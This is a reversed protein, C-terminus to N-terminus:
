IIPALKSYLMFMFASIREERMGKGGLDKKGKRGMRWVEGGWVKQIILPMYGTSSGPNDQRLSPPNHSSGLGLFTIKLM